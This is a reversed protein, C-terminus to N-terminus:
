RGLERAMRLGIARLQGNVNLFVDIGSFGTVRVAKRHVHGIAFCSLFCSSPVLCICLLMRETRITRRAVPQRETAVHHWLLHLRM